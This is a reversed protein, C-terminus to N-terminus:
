VQRSRRYAAPSIGCFQRFQRTFWSVDEYGLQASIVKIPLDSEGLLQRARAVRVELRHAHLSQGTAERFRRRLTTLSINARDALERYDVEGPEALRRLVHPLWAPGTAPDTRTTEAWEILLGELQNTARLRSWRGPQMALRIVEDFIQAVRDRDCASVAGVPPPWLGDAEWTAVRPGRFAVHRHDWTRGPEAEFRIWPGPHCPWLWGPGLSHAQDDYSLAVEGRTMYQWTHYTFRKALHAACEPQHSGHLFTLDDLMTLNHWLITSIERANMDSQQASDAVVEIWCSFM